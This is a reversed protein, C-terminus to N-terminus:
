LNSYEIYFLKRTLQSKLVRASIITQDRRLTNVPQTIIKSIGTVGDNNILYDTGYGVRSLCVRSLVVRSM